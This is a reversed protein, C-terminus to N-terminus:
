ADGNGQAEGAPELNAVRERGEGGRAHQGLAARGDVIFGDRAAEGGGRPGATEFADALAGFNVNVARVVGGPRAFDGDEPLLEEGAAFNEQDVSGHAVFGDVFDGSKKEGVSGGHNERRGCLGAGDGGRQERFHGCVVRPNGFDHGVGRLGQRAGEFECRGFVNDKDGSREVEDAFQAAFAHGAFAAPRNRVLPLPIRPGYM